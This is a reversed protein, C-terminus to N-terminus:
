QTVKIFRMLYTKYFRNVFYVIPIVIITAFIFTLHIDDLLINEIIDTGIAESSTIDPIFEGFNQNLVVTLVLVSWVLLNFQVLRLSPKDLEIEIKHKSM